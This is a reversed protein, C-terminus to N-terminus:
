PIGPHHIDYYLSEGGTVTTGSEGYFTQVTHYYAEGSMNFYEDILEYNNDWSASCGYLADPQGAVKKWVCVDLDYGQNWQSSDCSDATSCTM